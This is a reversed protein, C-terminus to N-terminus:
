LLPAGAEAPAFLLLYFAILEAFLLLNSALYNRLLYFGM